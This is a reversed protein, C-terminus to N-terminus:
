RARIWRTIADVARQDRVVTGLPPMQSSPSRSRMRLLLASREPNGPHVLTTSGDPQGPAQWNSPREVLNRAVLDANEMLDAYKLSPGLVAVGDSGDHCMACNAALYGLVARTAPDNTQIRPPNSVLEHRQPMLRHEEVLDKLTIMGPALPEGHIANPDRDTSLQLPNFGLPGARTTGHCATCDTRSPINHRRGSAVEVVDAVGEESALAADTGDDNWRYSAFVWGGEARWLLRTEVKRGNLSFEKWFRTGEPFRWGSDDTADIVGGPPLYVWRKKTLGDSWLPYQPAFLRNAPDILGARVDLYLGTDALRDPPRPVDSSGPAALVPKRGLMAGIGIAVVLAAVGWFRERTM